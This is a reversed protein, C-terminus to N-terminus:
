VWFSPPSVCRETQSCMESEQPGAIQEKIFEIDQAGLGYREFEERLGNEELLHDFMM